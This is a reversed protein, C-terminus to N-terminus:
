KEKGQPYSKMELLVNIFEKYQEVSRKCDYDRRTEELHEKQDLIRPEEEMFKDIDDGWHAVPMGISWAHTTKNNSKYQDQPRRSQPLLCIDHRLLELNVKEMDGPWKIFEEFQKFDSYQRGSVSIFKEAIITISLGHEQLKTIYKQLAHANHSYGFWVVSKARGKHQKTQKMVAMDHRDEIVVVPRDTLKRMYAAMAETNAVVGDVNQLFRVVEVTPSGQLWDPDCIDLIRVGDYIAAYDHWYYKQFVVADYKPGLRFREFEPNYKILNLARIRSSGSQEIRDQDFTLFGVKM